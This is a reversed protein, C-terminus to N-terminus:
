LLLIEKNQTPKFIYKLGKKTIERNLSVKISTPLLFLGKLKEFWMM